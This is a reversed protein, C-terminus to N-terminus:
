NHVFLTKNIKISQENPFKKKFDEVFQGDADFKTTLPIQKALDTRTAFAGMDIQGGAPVCKFPQYNFHSHIMDWYIFGPSGDMVINLEEILIPCYYNDDNTMIIYDSNSIQKAIEHPTHGWDNWRKDMLLFGIREDEFSQVIKINETDLPNDIVVTAKWNDRTQAVLSSLVCKLERPRYFTSILFEIIM